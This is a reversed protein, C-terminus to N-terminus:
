RDMMDADVWGPIVRFHGHNYDSYTAATAHSVFVVRAPIRFIAQGQSLLAPYQQEYTSRESEHIVWVIRTRPHKTVHLHELLPVFVITNILTIDAADMKQLICTWTDVPCVHVPVALKDFHKRLPGDVPSVVTLPLLQKNLLKALRLLYLPAGEINLNHTLILMSKAQLTHAPQGVPGASWKTYRQLMSAGTGRNTKYFLAELPHITMGDYGGEGYFVDLSVNTCPNEFSFREPWSLGQYKLQLSEINYGAELMVRSIDGEAKLTGEKNHCALINNALILQLGTQDTAWIMTQIHPLKRGVGDPCNLTVGVLKTSQTIRNAFIQTWRASRTHSGAVYVPVFPGRISSNMFIYYQYTKNQKAVHELGKGWGGVDFCTNERHIVHVNSYSPLEVSCNGNIVFVFDVSPDDSVGHQLFFM